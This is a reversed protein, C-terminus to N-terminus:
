ARVDDDDGHRHGGGLAGEAGDAVQHIRAHQEHVHAAGLAVHDIRGATHQLFAQGGEHRRVGNGATFHGADLMGVCLEVLAALDDQCRQLLGVRHQHLFGGVHPGGDAALHELHRRLVVVRRERRHAVQRV